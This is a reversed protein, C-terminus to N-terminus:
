IKKPFFQDVFSEARHMHASIKQILDDIFQKIALFMAYNQVQELVIKLMDDFFDLVPRLGLKIILADLHGLASEVDRGKNTVVYLPNKGM